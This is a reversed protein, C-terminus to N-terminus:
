WSKKLIYTGTIINAGERKINIISTNVALFHCGCQLMTISQVRVFDKCLMVSRTKSLLRGPLCLLGETNAARWLSGM